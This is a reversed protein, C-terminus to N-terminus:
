AQWGPAWRTRWRWSATASPWSSVLGPDDQGRATTEVRWSGRGAAKARYMAADAGALAREATGSGVGLISCWCRATVTRAGGRHWHRDLLEMFRRRNPLGTLDDRESLRRWALERERRESV